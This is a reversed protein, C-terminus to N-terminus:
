ITIIRQFQIIDKYFLNRKFLFFSFMGFELVFVPHDLVKGARGPSFM